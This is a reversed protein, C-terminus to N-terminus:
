PHATRPWRHRPSDVYQELLDEGEPFLAYRNQVDGVLHVLDEADRVVDGDDAVALPDFGARCGIVVRILQDGAHYAALNGAYEGLVGRHRDAVNDKLALLQCLFLGVAAAESVDVELEACALDEAKGTQYARAAALDHASDETM